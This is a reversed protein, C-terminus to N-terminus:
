AVVKDLAQYVEIQAAALAKEAESTARDFV